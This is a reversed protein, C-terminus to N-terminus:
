NHREYLPKDRRLEGSRTAPHPRTGWDLAGMRWLYVLGAILVGIFVLIEIYGAWGLQRFAVAWAVIFVTELDFVVFFMAVLYYKIDVKLRASGTVRIGSEFPEGTFRENHRQGLIYSIVLIGGVLILIAVFYLALPWLPQQTAVQAQAVTQM